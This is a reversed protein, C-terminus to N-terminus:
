ITLSVFFFSGLAVVLFALAMRIQTNLLSLQGEISDLRRYNEAWRQSCAAEHSTLRKDLEAIQQTM